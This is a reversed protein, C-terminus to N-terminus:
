LVIEMEDAVAFCQVGSGSKQIRQRCTEVHLELEEDTRDPDHHFIGFSKVNAAIALDTADAYTSHGWGRTYRYEDDTYQSDHILLDADQVTKAFYDRDPGNPHAFGLENDPFFFFTKGNESFRYGFGGNPHNIPIARVEIGDCICNRNEQCPNDCHFNMKAQLQSLDVPFYPAQMQHSLYQRISDQAHPGSCFTLSYKNSYAPQFFPFGLLHDWHSHTFYFRVSTVDKEKVLSKGLKHLGSGADIIIVGGTDPRVEVCTTNGGYRSMKVGPAPLSGRCGWIKIKM